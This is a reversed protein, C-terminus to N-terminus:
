KCGKEAGEYDWFLKKKTDTPARTRPEKRMFAILLILEEDYLAITETDKRTDM